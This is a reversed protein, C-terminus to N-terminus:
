FKKLERRKRDLDTLNRVRDIESSRTVHIYDHVKDRLNSLGFGVPVEGEVRFWIPEAGKYEIHTIVFGSNDKYDIKDGVQWTIYSPTQDQDMKFTYRGFFIGIVFCVIGIFCITATM